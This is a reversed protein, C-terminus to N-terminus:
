GFLLRCIEEVKDLDFWDDTRVGSEMDLWYDYDSLIDIEEKKELINDANLGGAFGQYMDFYDFDGATGQGGSKDSLFVVDTDKFLEFNAKSENVDLNIQVIIQKGKTDEIQQKAKTCAVNLQLRQFMGFYSGMFSEVDNLTGEKIVERALRGCVHLALNLNKNKFKQLTILAPYRNNTNKGTASESILFGFEALPYKKQIELLRNVDTRQDIGTFTVKKIM